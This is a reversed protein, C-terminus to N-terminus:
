LVCYIVGIFCVQSGNDNLFQPPIHIKSDISRSGTGSEVHTAAQIYTCRQHREASCLIMRGNLWLNLHGSFMVHLTVSACSRATFKRVVNIPLTDDFGEADTKARSIPATM